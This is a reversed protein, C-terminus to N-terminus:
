MWCMPLEPHVDCPHRPAAAGEESVDEGAPLADELIDVVLNARVDLLVLDRGVLRYEVEEPLPPLERLLSPWMVNGIGWPFSGNVDPLVSDHITEQEMEDLVAAVPVNTREIVDGIYARLYSAVRPTFVDGRRAAPRSGRIAAAFTETNRHLQEPDGCMEEPGFAAAVMRHLEVYEGVRDSFELRASQSPLPSTAAVSGAGGAIPILLLLSVRILLSASM